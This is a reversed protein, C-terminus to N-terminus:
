RIDMKILKPRHNRGTTRIKTLLVINQTHVPAIRLDHHKHWPILQLRTFLATENLLRTCFLGVSYLSFLHVRSPPTGQQGDTNQPSARMRSARPLSRRRVVVVTTESHTTDINIMKCDLLACNQGAVNLRTDTFNVMDSTCVLAVWSWTVLIGPWKKPICSVKAHSYQLKYLLCM